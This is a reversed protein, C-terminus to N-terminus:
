VFLMFAGGALAAELVMPLGDVSKVTRLSCTVSRLLILYFSRSGFHARVRALQASAVV